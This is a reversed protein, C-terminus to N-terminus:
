LLLRSASFAKQDEKEHNMTKSLRKNMPYSSYIIWWLGCDGSVADYWLREGQSLNFDQYTSREAKWCWSLRSHKSASSLIVWLVSNRCGRMSSSVNYTSRSFSCSSRVVSLTWRAVVHVTPLYCLRVTTLCSLSGNFPNEFYFHLAWWKSSTTTTISRVKTKSRKRDIMWFLHLNM